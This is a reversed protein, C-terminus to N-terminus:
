RNIYKELKIQFLEIDFYFSCNELVEISFLCSAKKNSGWRLSSPNEEITINHKPLFFMCVNKNQLM